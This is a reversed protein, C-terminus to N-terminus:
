GFLNDFDLLNKLASGPKKQVNNKQRHKKIISKAKKFGQPNKNKRFTKKNKNKKDSSSIYKAPRTNNM